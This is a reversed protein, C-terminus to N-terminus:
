GETLFVYWEEQKLNPYFPAHVYGMVENEEIFPRKVSVSVTAIDDKCVEPEGEVEVKASIEVDHPFHKMFAEIDLMQEDTMNALGRRRGEAGPEKKIWEVISLKSFDM